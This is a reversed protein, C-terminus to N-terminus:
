SKDKKRCILNFQGKSKLLASDIWCSLGLRMASSYRSFKVVELGAKECEAVVVDEKFGHYLHYDSMRYNLGAVKPIRGAKLINYFVNDAQWLIKRLFRDASLAYQTPEHTVYLWGGPELISCIDNLTRLYDPLHHLVSSIVILDFKRKCERIFDDANQCFFSVQDKNGAPVKEKFVELMEPSLDVGWLPHGLEILKLALNGTGCGIDLVLSKGPIRGNIFRLDSWIRSQEFWNFEEPHLRDYYRAEVKHLKINEEIIQKHLENM